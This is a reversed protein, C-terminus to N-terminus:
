NFITDSCFHGNLCNRNTIETINDGSVETRSHLEELINVVDEDQLLLFDLNFMNEPINSTNRSTSSNTVKAPSTQIRSSNLKEDQLLINKNQSTLLKKM